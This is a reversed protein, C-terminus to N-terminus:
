LAQQVAGVPADKRPKTGEPVADPDEQVAGDAPTTGEPVGGAADKRNIIPLAKYPVWPPVTVAKKEGDDDPKEFAKRAKIEAIRNTCMPAYTSDPFRAQVDEYCRIADKSKRTAYLFDGAYYGAAPAFPTHRHSSYFQRLIEPDKRVLKDEFAIKMTEYRKVYEDILGKKQIELTKLKESIEQLGEGALGTDEQVVEITEKLKGAQKEAEELQPQLRKCTLTFTQAETHYKEQKAILENIQKSLETRRQSIEQLRVEATERLTKVAPTVSAKIRAVTSQNHAVIAITAIVTAVFGVWATVALAGGGSSPPAVPRMSRRSGTGTDTVKM